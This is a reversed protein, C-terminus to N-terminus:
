VPGPIVPLQLAAPFAVLSSMPQVELRSEPSESGASRHKQAARKAKKRIKLEAATCLHCHLCEQSNVCGQPRWFWACPKCNGSGHLQGGKSLEPQRQELPTIVPSATVEFAPERQVPHEGTAPSAQLPTPPWMQSRARLPCSKTPVMPPLDEDDEDESEVGDIFTNKVKFNQRGQQLLLCPGPTKADVRAEAVAELAVGTQPKEEFSVIESSVPKEDLDSDETDARTTTSGPCTKRAEMLPRADCDDDDSDAVDIFTNKVKVKALQQRGQVMFDAVIELQIEHDQCQQLDIPAVM